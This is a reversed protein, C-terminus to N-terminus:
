HDHERGDRIKIICHYFTCDLARETAQERSKQDDKPVGYGSYYMQGVLVQMNIDRLLNNIGLKMLLGLPFTGLDQSNPFPVVSFLNQEKGDREHFEDFMALMVVSFRSLRELTNWSFSMPKLHRLSLPQLMPTVGSKGVLQTKLLEKRETLLVSLFKIITLILEVFSFLTAQPILNWKLGLFHAKLDSQCKLTIEFVADLGGLERLKEKFNRGTKCVVGSTEYLSISSLCAKEIILLALWEPCLEPMEINNDIQFRKRQHYYFLQYVDYSQKSECCCPCGKRAVHPESLKIWRRDFVCLRLDEPLSLMDYSLGLSISIRVAAELPLPPPLESGATIAAAGKGQARVCMGRKERRGGADCGECEYNQTQCPEVAISPTEWAELLPPSTRRGALAERREGARKPVAERHCSTPLGFSPPVAALRPDIERTRSSEREEGLVGKGRLECRRRRHCHCGGRRRGKRGEERIRGRM